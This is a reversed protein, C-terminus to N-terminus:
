TYSYVSKRYKNFIPDTKRGKEKAYCEQIFDNRHKRIYALEKMFKSNSEAVTFGKPHQKSIFRKGKKELERWSYVYDNITSNYHPDFNQGEKYFNIDVKFNGGCSCIFSQMTQNTEHRSCLDCIYNLIIPM